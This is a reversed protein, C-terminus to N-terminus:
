ARARGCRCGPRRLATATAAGALIAPVDVGALSADKAAPLPYALAATLGAAAIAFLAGLLLFTLLKAAVLRTRQPTVLLASTITMHRHETTVGLIGLVLVFVTGSAAGAFVNRVGGPQDLTPAGPQGAVLVTAVVNLTVFLLCGALLGWVMRTTLVKQLEARVLRTM